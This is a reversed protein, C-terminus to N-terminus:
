AKDSVEETTLDAKKEGILEPEVIETSVEEEVEEAKEQVLAIVLENAQEEEALVLTVKSSDFELNALTFQDGIAKFQSQDIIFKEPLDTPLAEVEVSDKVLVLVGNDVNLEGSIEVSIEAKIKQTLNIKRFVVHLVNKGYVDYQVEDILVPFESKEGEVQLYIIANDSLNRTLKLFTLNNVELSLSDKGSQYMNAPIIGARRLQNNKKAQRKAVKLTNKEM